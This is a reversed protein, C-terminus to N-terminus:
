KEHLISNKKTRNFESNSLCMPYKYLSHYFILIRHNKKKLFLSIIFIVLLLKSDHWNNYSNYSYNSTIHYMCKALTWGFRMRIDDLGWEIHIKGFKANKSSVPHDWIVNACYSEENKFTCNRKSFFLLSQLKNRKWEWENMAAYIIVCKLDMRRWIRVFAVLVIAM